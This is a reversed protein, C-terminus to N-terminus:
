NNRDPNICLLIIDVSSEDGNFTFTPQTNMYLDPDDLAEDGGKKFKYYNSVLGSINQNNTTNQIYLIWNEELETLWQADTKDTWTSIGNLISVIASQITSTSGNITVNSYIDIGIKGSGNGSVATTTSISNPIFTEDAPVDKGEAQDYDPADPATTDIIVSTNIVPSAINGSETTGIAITYAGDATSFDYAPTIDYSTSGTLANVSSDVSITESTGNIGVNFTRTNTNAVVVTFKLSTFNTITDTTLGSNTDNHLTISSVVSSVETLSASVPSGTTLAQDIHDYVSTNSAVDVQVKESDNWTNSTNYTISIGLVYTYDNTKTVSNLSVSGGTTQGGGTLSLDFDGVVLDGTGGTNTFVPKTFLVILETDNNDPAVGSLTPVDYDILLVQGATGDFTNGAQDHIHYRNELVTNTDGYQASTVSLTELGNPKNSSLFDLSLKYVSSSIKTVNTPNTGDFQANGSAGSISLVFNSAALDSQTYSTSSLLAGADGVNESFTVTVEQQTTSTQVISMSSISPATADHTWAFQTAASNNNGAGDTFKNVAVDITCSGNATPTFVASYSTGSGSFSSLTGNSVDIDGVAFNNTTENSVFALIYTSSSSVGGNTVPRDYNTSDVTIRAEAGITMTPGVSDFTWNFDDTAANIIGGVTFSGAAVEIVCAGQGDPTFTATYTTGSGSFNTIGGNSATIDLAIFNTTAASATFTLTLTADNSTDGSTVEAATITMTPTPNNLTITASATAKNGAADEIANSAPAVTLTDSSNAITSYGITLDYEDDATKSIGTPTASSLVATGGSVSLVFDSAVLNGSSGDNSGDNVNESFNVTVSTNDSSLSGLTFTPVILDNLTIDASATVKNSAADQIANTVPAVTLTSGVDADTTYGITLVYVTDSTKSIGTPTASSLVTGGGSVSLEFDSAALNGGTSVNEDFTVTVQTNNSALTGLTFTPATQDNLPIDASATAKNGAADEIANSAPAVTLTSGADAATSYGITLVYVSDSSKSIGTPIASSLVTGGGSVSLVFDSAVLNGSSGDNSGDNVNESFNVTVSTNDSSLSGLTFTPVILDNLTIDASATVKNSAADQIANTVPAVTLTSGVDADTTYGITLVYVTDSTKSIGTPTTSSLVTGGGSVSLEFDNVDLDGGSGNDVSETFTVTVSTNNSALTGLTMTPAVDDHTWNFVDTADNNISNVTFKNALVQITCAGQSDPTFTATYTINDSTSFASIAGNGTTIDTAIFSGATAGSATFTLSLTADNSTDGDNVETASITMTATDINVVTVTSTTIPNTKGSDHYLTITVDENASISNAVATLTVTGTSGSDKYITGGASFTITGSSSGLYYPTSTDNSINSTISVTITEGENVSSASFNLSATYVNVDATEVLVSDAKANSGNKKPYLGFKITRDSTPQSTTVTSGGISTRSDTSIIQREIPLTTDIADANGDSQDIYFRFGDALTPTISPLTITFTLNAGGIINTKNPTLAVAGATNDLIIVDVSSTTTDVAGSGNDAHGEFIEYNQAADYTYFYIGVKQNTELLTSDNTFSLNSATSSEPDYNLINSKKFVWDAKTGSYDTHKRTWLQYYGNNHSEKTYNYANWYSKAIVITPNGVIFEPYNDWTELGNVSKIYPGALSTDDKLSSGNSAQTDLYTKLVAPTSTNGAVDTATVLIDIFGDNDITNSLTGVASTTISWNGSGDATATGIHTGPIALYKYIYITSGVDSTGSITPTVDRLAFTNKITIEPSTAQLTPTSDYLVVKFTKDAEPTAENANLNIQIELTKEHVNQPFTIQYATGSGSNYDNLRQIDVAAIKKSADTGEIYYLNYTKASATTQSTPVHIDLTIKQGEYVKYGSSSVSWTTSGGGSFTGIDNYEEITELTNDNNTENVPENNFGTISIKVM